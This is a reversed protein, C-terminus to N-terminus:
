ARQNTRFGEFRATRRAECNEVMGADPLLSKLSNIPEEYFYETEFSCRGRQEQQQWDSSRRRLVSAAQYQCRFLYLTYRDELSEPDDVGRRHITDKVLLRRLVEIM